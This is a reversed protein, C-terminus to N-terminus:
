SRARSEDRIETLLEIIRNLKDESHEPEEPQTPPSSELRIGEPQLAIQLRHISRPGEGTSRTDLTRVEMPIASGNGIRVMVPERALLDIMQDRDREGKAVVVFDVAGTKTDRSWSTVRVAQENLYIFEPVSM